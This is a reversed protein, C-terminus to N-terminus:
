VGKSGWEHHQVWGCAREIDAAAVTEPGVCEDSVIGADQLGDMAVVPDVKLFDILEELQNM